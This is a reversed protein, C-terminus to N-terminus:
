HNAEQIWIWHDEVYAIAGGPFPDTQSRNPATVLGVVKEIHEFNPACPLTQQLFQRAVRRQLALPSEKLLSRDLGPRDLHQIQKLLEAAQTELYKVDAQLLEATQSLAQEVQPNFHTQLYPLLEQRIRNRAYTLDHNTTDDWVKLQAEQCFQGTEIRTMGLLPRVLQINPQLAPALLRKWVLAQLGDAGSGRVLNYLLTEARDSATHGTVIYAYGHQQAITTLVGYRWTRAEAESTSVTEATEQYYPLQWDQALQQVYAANADSDTRWRHNCHAIALHWGWKAQLDLLLKVLCLSDQGGSVAVLVRQGRELLRRAKLTRQLQTHLPTWADHPM